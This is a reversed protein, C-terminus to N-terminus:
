YRTQYLAYSKTKEVDLMKDNFENMLYRKM